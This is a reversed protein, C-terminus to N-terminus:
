LNGEMKKSSDEVLRILIEMGVAQEVYRAHKVALYPDEENLRFSQQMLKETYRRAWRKLVVFNQTQAFNAMAELEAIDTKIEKPKPILGEKNEM